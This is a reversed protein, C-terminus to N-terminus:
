DRQIFKLDTGHCKTCALHGNQSARIFRRLKDSMRRYTYTKGCDQCVFKYKAINVLIKSVEAACDNQVRTGTQTAGIMKCMEQFRYDHGCDEKYTVTAMFHAYEHKIIEEFHKDSLNLVTRTIGFMVPTATSQQFRFFALARTGRSKKIPIDSSDLGTLKDLENMLNRVDELTKM